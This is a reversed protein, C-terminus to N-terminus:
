ANEDPVQPPVFADDFRNRGHPGRVAPGHPDHPHHPPPPPPFGQRGPMPRPPHGPFGRMGQMFHPREGPFPAPGDFFPPRHRPPMEGFHQKLNDSLKQLLAGFVDVEQQSFCGFYEEAVDTRAYEMENAAIGGKETLTVLVSRRDEPSVRRNVLGAEELKMLMESISAARVGASEQLARQTMEGQDRLLSLIKPQGAGVDPAHRLYRANIRFLDFLETKTM